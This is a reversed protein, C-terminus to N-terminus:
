VKSHVVAAHHDHAAFAFLLVRIAAALNLQPCCCHLLLRRWAAAATQVASASGVVLGRAPLLLPCFVHESPLACAVVFPLEFAAVVAPWLPWADGDHTQKV